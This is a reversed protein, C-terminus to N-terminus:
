LADQVARRLKLFAADELMDRSRPRPLNVDFRWVYLLM